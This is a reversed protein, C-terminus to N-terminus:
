PHQYRPLATNNGGNNTPLVAQQATEKGAGIKTSYFDSQIKGTKYKGVFRIQLQKFSSRLEKIGVLLNPNNNGSSKLNLTFEAIKMEYQSFKANLVDYQKLQDREQENSKIKQELNNIARELKKYDSLLLQHQPYKKLQDKINIRLSQLPNRFSLWGPMQNAIENLNNWLTYGFTDQICDNVKRICENINPPVLYKDPRAPDAYSKVFTMMIEAIKKRFEETTDDPQGKPNGVTEPSSKFMHTFKTHTPLTTSKKLDDMEIHDSLKQNLKNFGQFLKKQGEYLQQLYSYKTSHTELKAKKNDLNITVGFLDTSLTSLAKSISIRTEPQFYPKEGSPAFEPLVTSLFDIQKQLIIQQQKLLEIEWADFFSKTKSQFWRCTASRTKADDLCRKVDELQKELKLWIPNESINKENPKSISLNQLLALDVILQQQSRFYHFRKNHGKFLWAPRLPKEPILAQFSEPIFSVTGSYLVEKLRM